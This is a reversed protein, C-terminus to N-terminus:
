TQYRMENIKHVMIVYVITHANRYNEKNEDLDCSRLREQCMTNIKFYLSQKLYWIVLSYLKTGEMQLKFGFHM